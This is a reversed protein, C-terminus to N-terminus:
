KKIKKLSGAPIAGDSRGKLYAYLSDMAQEETVGRKKIMKINMVNELMPPMSGKGNKVIDILTAKDVRKLAELLNPFAAGGAADPGHCTECRGRQYIKMGIWTAEDLKGDEIVYPKDQAMAHGAFLLGAGLVLGTGLKKVIEPKL